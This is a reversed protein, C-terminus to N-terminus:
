PTLLRLIVSPFEELGPITIALPARDLKFEVKLPLREIRLVFKVALLRLKVTFEEALVKVILPLADSATGLIPFRLTIKPPPLEVPISTVFPESVLTLMVTLLLRVTAPEVNLVDPRFIVALVTVFAKVMVPLLLTLTGLTPLILTIKPPLLEVPSTTVFPERVLMFTVTLPLTEIKLVFKVALPRFRVALVETLVKVIFPLAVRVTGEMPLKLTIKPPALEVPKTSVLPESELTLMVTFLLRVTVPEVKLVVPRFIVALVAVFAKVMVPLLLTLTGLTPLILTIKPPALEVPRTTVFPESVLMFTVTLPFRDMRLVLKVALLKFMVTFEVVLVKVMFPLAM